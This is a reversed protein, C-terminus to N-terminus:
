FRYYITNNLRNDNINNINNFNNINTINDINNIQLKLNSNEKSLNNQKIKM